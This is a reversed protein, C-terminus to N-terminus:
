AVARLGDHVAPAYIPADGQLFTHRGLRELLDSASEVPFGEVRLGARYIIIYPRTHDDDIWPNNRLFPYATPSEIEVTAVAFGARRGLAALREGDRCRAAHDSSSLSTLILMACKSSLVTSIRCDSVQDTHLPTRPCPSM